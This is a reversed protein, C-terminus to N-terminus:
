PCPSISRRRNASVAHLLCRPEMVEPLQDGQRNRWGSRVFEEIAAFMNMRTVKEAFPDLLLEYLAQPQGDFISALVRHGTEDLMEEM